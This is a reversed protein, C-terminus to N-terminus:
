LWRVINKPPPLFPPRKDVVCFNFTLPTFVKERPFDDDPWNGPERWYPSLTTPRSLALAKRKETTHLGSITLILDQRSRINTRWLIRWLGPRGVNSIKKRQKTECFCCWQRGPRRRNTETSVDLRNPKWITGLFTSYLTPRYSFLYFIIDGNKVVSSLVLCGGVGGLLPSLFCDLDLSLSLDIM